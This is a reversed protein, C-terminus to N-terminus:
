WGSHPSDDRQSRPEREPLRAQFDPTRVPQSGAGDFALRAITVAHLVAESRKGPAIGVARVGEILERVRSYTPDEGCRILGEVIEEETVAHPQVLMGSIANMAPLPPPITSDSPLPLPMSGIAGPLEPSVAAAEMTEQWRRALAHSRYAHASLADRRDDYFAGVREREDPSLASVVAALAVSQEAIAAEIAEEMPVEVGAGDAYLRDTEFRDLLAEIRTAGEIQEDISGAHAGCHIEDTHDPYHTRVIESAWVESEPKGRWGWMGATEPEISRARLARHVAADREVLGGEYRVVDAGAPVDVGHPAVITARQGVSIGRTLATPNGLDDSAKGSGGDAHTADMRLWTDVQGLGAPVPMERPDAVIVIRGKLNGEGDENFRGYAHDAVVCNVTWHSTNRARGFMDNRAYPLHLGGRGFTAGHLDDQVRVLAFPPASTAEETASVAARVTSLENARESEFRATSLGTLGNRAHREVAQQVLLKIAQSRDHAPLPESTDLYPRLANIREVCPDEDSTCLSLLLEEDTIDSPIPSHM